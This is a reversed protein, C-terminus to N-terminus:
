PVVGSSAPHVEKYFAAAAEAKARAEGHWRVKM